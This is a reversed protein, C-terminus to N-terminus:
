PALDKLLAEAQARREPNHINPIALEIAKAARERQQPNNQAMQLYALVQYWYIDEGFRELDEIKAFCQMATLPDKLRLQIIGLYLWADAQCATATDLVIFLLPDMANRLDGAQYAADAERLLMLCEETLPAAADSNNTNRRQEWDALLSRPPNFNSAYLEAITKPRFLFQYVAYAGIVSLFIFLAWRWAKRNASEVLPQPPTPPQYAQEHAGTYQWIRFGERDSLAATLVEPSINKDSLAAKLADACPGELSTPEALLAGQCDPDLGELASWVVAKQQTQRLAAEDFLSHEPLSASLVPQLLMAHALALQRLFAEMSIDEPTQEARALRAVDSVALRFCYAAESESLDLATLRQADSRFLSYLVSTGFQADRRLGDFYAKTSFSESYAM